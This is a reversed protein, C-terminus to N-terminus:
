DPFLRHINYIWEQAISPSKILYTIDVSTGGLPVPTYTVSEQEICDFMTVKFSTSTSSKGLEIGMASITLTVTLTFEAASPIADANVSIGRQSALVTITGDALELDTM